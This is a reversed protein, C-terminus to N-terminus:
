PTLYSQVVPAVLAVLEEDDADALPPVRVVHRLLVLGILQSAVAAARIPPVGRSEAVKSLVVRTLFQRMMTAAQENGTVSRLIALFPERSREEAWLGLFLRVIREGLEGPPGALLRPLEDVPNVPFNMAAVFLQQKTGFFHHLLAANVGAAAAIGRITAGDYGQEAFQTRAAAVIQERTENPGPRRGARAM